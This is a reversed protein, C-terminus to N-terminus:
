GGHGGGFEDGLDRKPGQDLLEFRGQFVIRKRSAEPDKRSESRVLDSVKYCGCAGFRTQRVLQVDLEGAVHEFVSDVVSEEDIMRRNVGAGEIACSPDNEGDIGLRVDPGGKVM